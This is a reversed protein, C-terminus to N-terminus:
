SGRGRCTRKVRKFNMNRIYDDIAKALILFDAWIKKKDPMEPFIFVLADIAQKRVYENEDGTLRLIDNWAKKKDPIHSFVPPLALLAEKQVEPNGSVALELLTELTEDKMEDPMQTYIVGLTRTAQERVKEDASESALELVENWAEEKEEDALEPFVLNLLLASKERIYSYESTGMKLLDKWVQGKDPVETIIYRLSTVIERNADEM